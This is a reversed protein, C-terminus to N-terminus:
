KKNKDSDKWSYFLEKFTEATNPNKYNRWFIDVTETIELTLNKKKNKTDMYELILTPRLVFFEKTGTSLNLIENPNLSLWINDENYSCFFLRENSLVLKREANIYIEGLKEENPTFVKGSPEEIAKKKSTYRINFLVLVVFLPILLFPADLELLQFIADM